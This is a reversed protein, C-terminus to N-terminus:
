NCEEEFCCDCLDWFRRSNDEEWTDNRSAPRIDCNVCTPPTNLKKNEEELIMIKKLLEVNHEILKKNDEFLKKNDTSLKKEMEQAVSFLKNIQEQLQKKSPM